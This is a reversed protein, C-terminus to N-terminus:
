NKYQRLVRLMNRVCDTQYKKKLFSTRMREVCGNESYLYCIDNDDKDLVIYRIYSEDIVIDGVNIEKSNEYDRIKKYAEFPLMNEFVQQRSMNPFIEQFKEKTLGDKEDCSIIKKALAWTEEATM